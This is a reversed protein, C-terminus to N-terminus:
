IEDGLYAAVNIAKERLARWGGARVIMEDGFHVMEHNALADALREDEERPEEPPPTNAM